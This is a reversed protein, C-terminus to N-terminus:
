LLEEVVLTLNFLLKDIVKYSNSCFRKEKKKAVSKELCVRQVFYLPELLTYLCFYTRKVNWELKVWHHM